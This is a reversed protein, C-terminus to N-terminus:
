RWVVDLDRPGFGHVRARVEHRHRRSTGTLTVAGPAHELAVQSAHDPGVTVDLHDPGAAGDSLRRLTLGAFSRDGGGFAAPTLAWSQATVGLRLLITKLLRLDRDAESEFASPSPDPLDLPM